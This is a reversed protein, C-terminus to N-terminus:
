SPAMACPTASGNRLREREGESLTQAQLQLRRRADDAERSALARRADASRSAEAAEAQTAELAAHLSTVVAEGDARAASLEARVRAVDAASRLESEVYSISSAEAAILACAARWRDLTLHLPLSARHAVAARLVITSAASRIAALEDSQSQIAARLHLAARPNAM